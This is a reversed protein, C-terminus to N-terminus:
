QQRNSLARRRKAIRQNRYQQRLVPDFVRLMIKVSAVLDAPYFPKTTYEVAGGELGRIANETGSVATLMIVPIAATRPDSQIQRLVDWGDIGPMLVDLIVLSPQEDVLLRLGDSGNTAGVVRFGEPELNAQIIDILGQDDDIVLIKDQKM